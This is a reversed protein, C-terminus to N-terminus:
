LRPFSDYQMFFVYLMSTSQAFQALKISSAAPFVYPTVEATTFKIVWFIITSNASPASTFAVMFATTFAHLLTSGSQSISSYFGRGGYAYLPSVCISIM